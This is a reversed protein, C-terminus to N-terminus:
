DLPKVEPAAPTYQVTTRRFLYIQRHNVIRIGKPTTNYRVYLELAARDRQEEDLEVEPRM